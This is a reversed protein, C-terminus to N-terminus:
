KKKNKIQTPDVGTTVKSIMDINIDGIRLYEWEFIWNNQKFFYLIHPKEVNLYYRSSRLFDVKIKAVIKIRNNLYLTAYKLHLYINLSISYLNLLEGRRLRKM